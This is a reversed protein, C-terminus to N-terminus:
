PAAQDQPPVVTWQNDSPGRHIRHVGPAQYIAVIPPDPEPITDMLQHVDDSASIEDQAEVIVDIQVRFYAVARRERNPSM